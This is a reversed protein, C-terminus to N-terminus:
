HGTIENSPHRFNLLKENYDYDYYHFDVETATAKFSKKENTMGGEGPGEALLSSVPYSGAKGGNDRDLAICLPATQPRVWEIFKM